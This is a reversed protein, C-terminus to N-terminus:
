ESSIARSISSSTRWIMSPACLARASSGRRADRAGRCSRPSGRQPALRDLLLLELLQEGARGLASTNPGVLRWAAPAGAPAAGRGRARAARPSAGAAAARGPRRCRPSRAAGIRRAGAARDDVCEPGRADRRIMRGRDAAPARKRMIPMRLTVGSENESPPRKRSAPPPPREPARAPERSPAAIM